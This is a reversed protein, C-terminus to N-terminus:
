SEVQNQRPGCVSFDKIKGNAVRNSSRPCRRDNRFDSRFTACDNLYPHLACDTGVAIFFSRCNSSILCSRLSLDVQDWKLARLRQKLLLLNKQKTKKKLHNWKEQFNLSLNFFFNNLDWPRSSLFKSRCTYIISQIFYIYNRSCM